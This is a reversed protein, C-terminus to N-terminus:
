LHLPYVVVWKVNGKMFINVTQALGIVNGMMTGKTQAQVTFMLSGQVHKKSSESKKQLEYINPEKILFLVNSLANGSTAVHVPGQWPDSHDPDQVFGAQNQCSPFIPKPLFFKM